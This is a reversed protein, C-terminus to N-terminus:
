TLFIPTASVFLIGRGLSVWIFIGSYVKTPYITNFYYNLNYLFSSVFTTSFFINAIFVSQKGEPGNLNKHMLVYLLVASIHSCRGLARVPCKDDCVCKMISGSVQSVAVKVLYAQANMSARVQGKYLHVRDTLVDHVNRVFGSKVYQLGRRLKKSCRIEKCEADEFPDSITIQVSNEKDSTSPNADDCETINPDTPELQPMTEVLYYFVSGFNFNTPIDRSPFIGWGVAHFIEQDTRLSIEQMCLYLKSLM